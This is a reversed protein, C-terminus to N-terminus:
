QHHIENQLSPKDFRDFLCANSTFLNSRSHSTLPKIAVPHLVAVPKGGVAGAGVVVRVTVGVASGVAVWLGGVAVSVGAGSVMM